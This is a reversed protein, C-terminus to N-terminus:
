LVCINEFFLFMKWLRFPVYMCIMEKSDETSVATMNELLQKLHLFFAEKCQKVGQTHTEFCKEHSQYVPFLDSNMTAHYFPGTCVYIYHKILLCVDKLLLKQASNYNKKIALVVSSELARAPLSNYIM